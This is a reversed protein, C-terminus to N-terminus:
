SATAISLAMLCCWCLMAEISEDEDVEVKEEVFTSVRAVAFLSSDLEPQAV